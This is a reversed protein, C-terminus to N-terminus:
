LVHLGDAFLSRAHTDRKLPTRISRKDGHAILLTPIPKIPLNSNRHIRIIIPPIRLTLHRLPPTLKPTTASYPLISQNPSLKKRESYSIKKRSQKPRQKKLLCANNANNANNNTILMHSPLIM